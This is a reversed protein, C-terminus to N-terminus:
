RRPGRLLRMSPLLMGGNTSTVSTIIAVDCAETPNQARCQGQGIPHDRVTAAASWRMVRPMAASRPRHGGLTFKLALRM